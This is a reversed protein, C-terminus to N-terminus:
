HMVWGGSISINAGTLSDSIKSCLIWTWNAVETPDLIRKQPINKVFSKIAEERSLSAEQQRKAISGEMMPTMVYGPCLANVNIGHPALESAWIKTLHSLAAKTASYASYTPTHLYAQTSSMNIIRGWSLKKMSHIVAKTCITAGTLNIDIVKKWQKIDAEEVPSKYMVGANNVLIDIKDFRQITEEVCRRVNEEDSVDIHIPFVKSGTKNSEPITNNQYQLDAAISMAGANSLTEAIAAGNGQAGGTILAVRGSLDFLHDIKINQHM